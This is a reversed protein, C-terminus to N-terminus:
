KQINKQGLLEVINKAPNTRPVSALGYAAISHLPTSSRKDRFDIRAGNAIM